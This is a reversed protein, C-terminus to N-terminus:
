PDLGDSFSAGAEIAGSAFMEATKREEETLEIRPMKRREVLVPEAGADVYGEFVVEWADDDHSLVIQPGDFDPDPRLPFIGVGSPYLPQRIAAAEERSLESGDDSPPREAAGLTSFLFNVYESPKGDPYVALFMSRRLNGPRMHWATADVARRLEEPPRPGCGALLAIALVPAPAALALRRAISAPLFKM